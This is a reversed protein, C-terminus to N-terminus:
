ETPSIKCVRLSQNTSFVLYSFTVEAVLLLDDMIILIEFTSLFGLKTLTKSFFANQNQFKQSSACFEKFFNIQAM